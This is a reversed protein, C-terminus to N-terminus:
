KQVSGGALKVSKTEDFWDEGEVGDEKDEAKKEKPDKEEDDDTGDGEKGNKKTQPKAAQLRLDAIDPATFFGDLFGQGLSM